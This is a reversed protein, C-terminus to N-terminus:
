KLREWRPRAALNFKIGNKTLTYMSMPVPIHLITDLLKIYIGVFDPGHLDGEGDENMTLTHALEHLIVWAPIVSPIRIRARNANAWVRRAQKGMLEVHPPYLWGHKLWVGDVFAQADKFQVTQQCCPRIVETEWAYVKSKQFDRM